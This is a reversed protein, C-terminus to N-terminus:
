FDDIVCLISFVVAAATVIVSIDFEIKPPNLLHMFVKGQM